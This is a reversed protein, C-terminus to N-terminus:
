VWPSATPNIIHEGKLPYPPLQSFAMYVMLGHTVGQSPCRGVLRIAEQARGSQLILQLAAYCFNLGFINKTIILAM